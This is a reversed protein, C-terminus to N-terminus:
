RTCVPSTDLPGTLPTACKAFKPSAWPDLCGTTVRIFWDPFLYFSPTVVVTHEDQVGGRWSCPCAATPTQGKDLCGQDPAHWPLLQQSGDCSPHWDDVVKITVCTRPLPFAFTSQECYADRQVDPPVGFADRLCAEIKDVMCDVAEPSVDNSSPDVKIGEPTTFAPRVDYTPTMGWDRALGDLHYSTCQGGASDTDEPAGCSPAVATLIAAWLLVGVLRRM